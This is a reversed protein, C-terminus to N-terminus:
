FQHHSQLLSTIHSSGTILLKVVVRLYTGQPEDTEVKLEYRHGESESKEATLVAHAPQTAGSERKVQSLM